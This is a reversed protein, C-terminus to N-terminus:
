KACGFRKLTEFFLLQFGMLIFMVEFASVEHFDIVNDSDFKSILMDIMFAILPLGISYGIALIFAIVYSQSRIHNFYEDEIVDKSLSAMLLFLLILTRCIDKMLLDNWGFFKSGILFGFILLAGILGIKKYPHALRFDLIRTLKSHEDERMVGQKKTNM